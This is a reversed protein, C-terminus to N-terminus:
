KAYRATFEDLKAKAEKIQKRLANQANSADIYAQHKSRIENVLEDDQQMMESLVSVLRKAEDADVM